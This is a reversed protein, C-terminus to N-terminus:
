SSTDCCFVKSKERSSRTNDYHKEEKRHANQIDNSTFHGVIYPFCRSKWPQTLVLLILLILLYLSLIAESIMYHGSLSFLNEIIPRLSEDITHRIFASILLMSFFLGLLKRLDAFKMSGSKFLFIGFVYGTIITPVIIYIALLLSLVFAM